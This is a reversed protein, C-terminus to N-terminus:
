GPPAAATQGPQPRVAPPCSAFAISVALAYLSMLGMGGLWVCCAARILVATKDTSPAGGGSNEAPSNVAGGAAPTGSGAEAGGTVPSAGNTSQPPPVTDTISLGPAQALANFVNYISLASPPQFPLLLRLILVSWLLYQWKPGLARHFLRRLAMLLLALVSGMASLTVVTKFLSIIIDM